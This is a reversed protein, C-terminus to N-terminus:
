KKEKVVGYRILDTARSKEQWARKLRDITEDPINGDESVALGRPNMDGEATSAVSALAHGTPSRELKQLDQYGWISLHEDALNLQPRFWAYPMEGLFAAWLSFSSVSCVLFDCASLALLDSIDGNPLDFTTVCPFRSTLPYIEEPSADTAIVFVAREGLGKYLSSMTAEYWELPLSINFRGSYANVSVPEDFDGRRLHVGIKLREMGTRRAIAYLNAATWRTALLRGRIFERAPELLGPGGWLGDIELVIPKRERLQNEWAFAALASAFDDGSHRLFDEECFRVTPFITRIAKQTIFDTRSTQFYRWYKRPNIGWAPHLLKMSLEEAAIFAKGWHILENGLGAGRRDLVPIVYQM